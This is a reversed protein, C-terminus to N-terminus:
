LDLHAKLHMPLDSRGNVQWWGSLGPPLALRQRQKEHLARPVHGVQAAL